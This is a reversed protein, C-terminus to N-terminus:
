PLSWDNRGLGSEGHGGLDVVVVQYFEALLDVQRRWFSRNGAWGHVLVVTPAVGDARGRIEHAVEVGDRSQAMRRAQCVEAGGRPEGMSQRDHRLRRDRVEDDSM